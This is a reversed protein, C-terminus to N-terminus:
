QYRGVWPHGGACYSGFYSNTPKKVFGTLFLLCLAIGVSTIVLSVPNPCWSERKCGIAVFGGSVPYGQGLSTAFNAVGLALLEQGADIEYGNKKHWPKLPRFAKSTHWFSVPL